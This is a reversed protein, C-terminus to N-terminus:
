PDNRKRQSLGRIVDKVYRRCRAPDAFDAESWRTAILIMRRRRQPVAYDAADLVECKASYGLKELEWKVERLRRDKVLRPVNELMVAQPMLGRVFRMFEFILDKSGDRVQHKGNLNRLTSFAQCPPCGALLELRGKRLRLSRRLGAVSVKHIDEEILKVEPHNMRYTENSLADNDVAALVRVGGRKLGCTLGGAGSFLDLARPNTKLLKRTAM